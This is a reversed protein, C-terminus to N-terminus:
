AVLALMLLVLALFLGVVAWFLLGGAIGVEHFSRVQYLTLPLKLIDAIGFAEREGIAVWIKGEEGSPIYGAVYYLGAEATEPTRASFQWSDTGTFEEHFFVPTEENTQFLLGGVGEPIEFPVVIEPLGPGLLVIAPRINQYREIAPVGAQLFLTQGAQANFSLWVEKQGPKVHHYAVQSVDPDAIQHATEATTPGGDIVIPKHAQADVAAIMYGVLILVGLLPMTRM